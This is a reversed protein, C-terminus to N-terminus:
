LFITELDKWSVVNGTKWEQNKSGGYVIYGRTQTNGTIDAWFALGEFFNRTITMSAKIEIPVLDNGKQIVCDIEHGSLDRWFYVHQPRKEHNYYHKYIESIILCEVLAGRAYHTDLQDPSQIGLLVCALGTDYFYLKPSKILRKNFNEYHPQLLFIIYSAELVSLWSKATRLDIGCDTALSTINLIQGIRGACLRVFRKFTSLDTVNLLQRVDREVYTEIYDLYWATPELDYAYIRPYGGRFAAKEISDALLGNNKLEQISFPLLTFLAIRGALTQSIAQNLLINQSGTLIIHGPKHEADVYTQIYSLLEPAHQIEDLIFGYPNDHSKLFRAPDGTALNREEHHELSVYRHRKFLMKALTTKGSQRPGLLAIVPMKQVITLINQEIIRRFM